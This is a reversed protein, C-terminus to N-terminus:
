KYRWKRTCAAIDGIDNVSTYRMRQLTGTAQSSRAGSCCYVFLAMDKNEAIAAVKDITELPVKKSGSIHGGGSVERAYACEASCCRSDSPFEGYVAMLSWQGSCQLRMWLGSM